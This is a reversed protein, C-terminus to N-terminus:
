LYGDQALKRARRLAKEDYVRSEWSQINAMERWTDLWDPILQRDYLTKVREVQIINGEEDKQDSPETEDTHLWVIDEKDETEPKLLASLTRSMGVLRYKKAFEGKINIQEGEKPPRDGHTAGYLHANFILEGDSWGADSVYGKSIYKMLYNKLNVIENEGKMLSFDLGYTHSGVEWEESYLRRLKDEMGEGYSDKINNDVITFVALHIHPYGTDNTTHPEIVWFYDIKGFYKRLVKLIKRRASTINDLTDYWSLGSNEQFGTLTILTCGDIRNAEYWESVHHMKAIWATRRKPHWRNCLPGSVKRKGWDNKSYKNLVYYSQCVSNVAIGQASFGSDDCMDMYRCFNVLLNGYKSKTLVSANKYSRWVLESPKKIVTPDKISRQVLSAGGGVGEGEPSPAKALTTARLPSEGVPEWRQYPVTIYIGSM